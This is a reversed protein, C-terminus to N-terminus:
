FPSFRMKVQVLDQCLVMKAFKKHYESNREKVKNYIIKTRPFALKIEKELANKQEEVKDLVPCYITNRYDNDRAM